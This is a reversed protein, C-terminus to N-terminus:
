YNYRRPFTRNSQCGEVQGLDAVSSEEERQSGTSVIRWGDCDEDTLLRQIKM